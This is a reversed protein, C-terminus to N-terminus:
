KCTATFASSGGANFVVNGSIIGNASVGTVITNFTNPASITKFVGNAYIFSVYPEQLTSFGVVVNNNSIGVLQTQGNSNPFDVKAWTGTHYIFGHQGGTSDSFSGAVTGYDNIGVPTTGQSAGPFDLTALGGNSFRKFGHAIEASDLYWGVISNYKNIGTFRTGLVSKPHTFSTFTTLGQLIFGRAMTSSAQSSYSGVSVGGDNRAMFSTFAANPATFYFVGGGSYRIFGQQPISSRQGVTTRFDNVGNILGPAQFLNFTCTAPNQSYVLTASCLILAVAFTLQSRSYSM